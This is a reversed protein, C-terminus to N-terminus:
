VGFEGRAIRDSTLLFQPFPVSPDLEVNLSGIAKIEAGYRAQTRASVYIFRAPAGVAAGFRKLVNKLITRVEVTDPM